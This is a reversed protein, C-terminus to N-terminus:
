AKSLIHYSKRESYLVTKDREIIRSFEPYQFTRKYNVFDNKILQIIEDAPAMCHPREKLVKVILEIILQVKNQRLNYFRPIHFLLGNHNQGVSKTTYSQKTILGLKLMVKRHYHLKMANEKTVKLSMKGITVEGLKRSRAIRELICWQMPSLKEILKPDYNDGLAAKEREVQSAVFVIRLM